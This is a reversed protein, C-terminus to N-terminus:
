ETLVLCRGFSTGTVAPGSTRELWVAAATVVAVPFRLFKAESASGLKGTQDAAAWCCCQRAAWPM